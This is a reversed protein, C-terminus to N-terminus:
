SCCVHRQGVPPKRIHQPEFPLEKLVTAPQARFCTAKREEEIEAQLQVCDSVMVILRLQPVHCSISGYFIFDKGLRLAWQM